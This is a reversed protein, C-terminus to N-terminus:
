RKEEFSKGYSNEQLSQIENKTLTNAIPNEFRLEQQSIYIDLSADSSYKAANELLNSIIRSLMMEDTYLSMNFESNHIRIDIKSRLFSINKKLFNELNIDRKETIKLTESYNLLGDIIRIMEKLHIQSNEIKEPIYEHKLIELNGYIM